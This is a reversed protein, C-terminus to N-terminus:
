RRRGRSRPKGHEWPLVVHYIEVPSRIHKLRKKGLSRIPLEFKNRVQDYVQQTLSIGGNSAWSEVRSAVNVADGLIDGESEIVDGLHIGVRLRIRDKAARSRNIERIQGQIDYACKVADLASDFEVLFGDGLTKIERGSHQAFAARLVHRHTDLVQLSAPEDEQALTAYGALDTYMIAVLRRPRLPPSADALAVESHGLLRLRHWRADWTKGHLMRVRIYHDIRDDEQQSKLDVIGDCLAEFKTFFTESGVGKPFALFHAMELARTGPLHVTRWIDLFTSEENFQLFIGSNDDFHIWRKETESIGSKMWKTFYGVDERLDLPNGAVTKWDRKAKTSAVFRTTDTYADVIKLLGQKQLGEADVGLGSLAEVVERPFHQFIHYQAKMGRKLASAVITLSTEYWPSTSDFEVIYHGGYSFGDPALDDLLPVKLSSRM